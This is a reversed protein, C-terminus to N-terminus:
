ESGVADLGCSVMRNGLIWELIMTGDVGLNGLSKKGEPKGISINYVYRIVGM